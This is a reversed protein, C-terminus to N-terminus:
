EFGDTFLSFILGNVSQESPVGLVVHAAAARLLEHERPSVSSTTFALDRPDNQTITAYIVCAALYTGRRSPHSGDGAYLRFFDSNENNVPDFGANIYADHILQFAPGVPAALTARQATSTAEVYRSYGEDLRAQMALYDPYYFPNRSDGNLRGWTQYFVTQAGTAAIADDILVAASLSDTFLNGADYFGPTQSQEQMVVVALALPDTILYQRLTTDGNSGDLNALHNTFNAGGRTTRYVQSQDQQGERLMSQLMSQLGHYSTYSNGILLVNQNQALAPSLGAALGLCLCGWLGLLRYFM